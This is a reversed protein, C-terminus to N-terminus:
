ACREQMMMSDHRSNRFFTDVLPISDATATECDEPLPLFILAISYYHGRPPSTLRCTSAVVFEKSAHGKPLGGISADAHM